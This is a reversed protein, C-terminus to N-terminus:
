IIKKEINLINRLIKYDNNLYTKHKAQILKKFYNHEKIWTPDGKPIKIIKEKPKGSPMVRRRLTLKSSSWKCLSSVHVSGKEGIIDCYFSNKWMCLTMELEINIKKSNSKIIVQDPSKNEHNFSSILSFDKVKKEGFFFYSLDILHPALDSFVGSQKDRWINTKVLRATGNGYFMRCSYIQGLIKKEIIKKLKVINPEFRHNYATYLILNKNSFKKKIKSLKSLSKIILPKEVLVNKNKKYCYDIYKEKYNDPICLFVSDFLNLPVDELYKYDAKPTYPDVIFINKNNKKIINYRKKGQVGFGVIVIKM